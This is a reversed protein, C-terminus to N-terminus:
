LLIGLCFIDSLTDSLCENVDSINKSSTGFTDMGQMNTHLLRSLLQEWIYHFVVVLGKHLVWFTGIFVHTQAQTFVFASPPSSIPARVWGAYQALGQGARCWLLNDRFGVWVVFAAVDQGAARGGPVQAAAWRAEGWLLKARLRGWLLKPRM